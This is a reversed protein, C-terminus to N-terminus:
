NWFGGFYLITAEIIIGLLATGFSYKEQKKYEGHKVLAIGLNMAMFVIMIIQPIGM